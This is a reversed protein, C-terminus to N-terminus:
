QQLLAMQEFLTLRGAKIIRQAINIGLKKGAESDSPYHLGAIERREAVQDAV